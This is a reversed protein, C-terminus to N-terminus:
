QGIVEDFHFCLTLCLCLLLMVFQFLPVCSKFVCPSLHVCDHYLPLCDFISPVCSSTFCVPLYLPVEFYFTILALLWLDAGFYSCHFGLGSFLPDYCYRLM